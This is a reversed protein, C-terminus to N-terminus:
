SRGYRDPLTTARASPLMAGNAERLTALRDLDALGPVSMTVGADLDALSATVVLEPEMRPVGSLDLGQCSHFESRVVGPCVVQVAVGTGHLEVALAQSFTVLFAKTAAYVARRPLLPEESEGSFALLSAVNVVSGRGRGVMQSVAANTLVVLALVNVDVLERARDAPLDAFAMYHALGASNVLMDPEARVLDDALRAVDDPSALDAVVVRVDNGHAARLSRALDELRDRRRAVVVLDWGDGSLRRAYADGIGSSAGTVM